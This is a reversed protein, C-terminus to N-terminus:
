MEIDKLSKIEREGQLVRLLWRWRGALRTSPVRPGPHPSGTSYRTHVGARAMSGGGAPGSRPPTTKNKQAATVREIHLIAQNRAIAIHMKPSEDGWPWGVQQVDYHYHYSEM